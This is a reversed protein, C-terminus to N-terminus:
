KKFIFDKEKTPWLLLKSRYRSEYGVEKTTQELAKAIPQREILFHKLFRITARDTHAASVPGDWGICAKAGKEYFAAAMVNQKISSCGMMIIITDKFIGEMCYRVFKENVVFYPDGKRTPALWGRGVEDRLQEFIYRKTSYLESTYLAVTSYRQKRVYSSHVRLVIFDYRHSPLNRYFEVTVNEGKYYDVTYDAKKLISSCEKVFAQNPYSISLHDVIAAKAQPQKSHNSQIIQSSQCLPFIYVLFLLWIVIIGYAIKKYPIHRRDKKAKSM